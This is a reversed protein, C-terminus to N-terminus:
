RTKGVGDAHMVDFTSQTATYPGAGVPTQGEKLTFTTFAGSSEAVYISSNSAGDTITIEDGAVWTVKGDSAIATKTPQEITATFETVGTPTEILQEKQCSALMALALLAASILISKKM